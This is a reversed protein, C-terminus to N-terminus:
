LSKTYPGKTKDGHLTSSRQIPQFLYSSLSPPLSSILDFDAEM